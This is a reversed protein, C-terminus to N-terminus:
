RPQFGTQCGGAPTGEPLLTDQDQHDQLRLRAQPGDRPVDRADAAALVRWIRDGQDPSWDGGCIDAIIKLAPWYDNQLEKWPRQRLRCGWFEGAIKKM